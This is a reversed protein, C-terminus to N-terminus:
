SFSLSDLQWSRQFAQVWFGKLTFLKLCTIMNWRLKTEVQSQFCYSEFYLTSFDMKDHFLALYMGCKCSLQHNNVHLFINWTSSHRQKITVMSGFRKILVQCGFSFFLESQVRKLLTCVSNSCTIPFGWNGSKVFNNCPFLCRM